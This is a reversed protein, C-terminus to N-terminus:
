PRKIFLFLKTPPQYNEVTIKERKEEKEPKEPIPKESIPKEPISKESVPKQSIIPPTEIRVEQLQKKLEVNKKQLYEYRYQPSTQRKLEERIKRDEDKEKCEKYHFPLHHKFILNKCLPCM